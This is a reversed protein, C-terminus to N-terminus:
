NRALMEAMKDFSAGWGENHSDRSEKKAFFEHRLTMETRAGVARFTLTILTDEGAEGMPHDTEWKWTMVLREPRVIERFVGGVTPGKGDNGRMFIRYRGGLKPSLELAEAKITRPGIWESIQKPDLWAEFVRERPADFMRTLVLTRDPDAEPKTQASM